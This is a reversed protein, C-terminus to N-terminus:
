RPGQSQGVTRVAAGSGQTEPRRGDDSWQDRIVANWCSRCGEVDADVGTAPGPDDLCRTFSNTDTVGDGVAYLSVSRLGLSDAGAFLADHMEHFRGQQGACVAAISALRGIRHAPAPAHYFRIAMKEPYQRLLDTLVGNAAERCFIRKFDSFEVFQIPASPDGILTGGTRLSDWNSVAVTDAFPRAVVDPQSMQRRAALLVSAVAALATIGVAINLVAM